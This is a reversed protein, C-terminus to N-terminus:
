LLTTSHPLEGVLPPPDYM